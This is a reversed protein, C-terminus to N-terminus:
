SIGCSRCRWPPVGGRGARAWTHRVAGVTGGTRPRPIRRHRRLRVAAPGRSGGRVDFRGRGEDVRRRRAASLTDSWRAGVASFESELERRHADSEEPTPLLDMAGREEAVGVWRALTTAPMPRDDPHEMPAAGGIMSAIRRPTLGDVLRLAGEVDGAAVSSELETM